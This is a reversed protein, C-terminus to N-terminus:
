VIVGMENVGAGCLILVCLIIWRITNQDIEISM